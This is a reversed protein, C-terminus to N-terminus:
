LYPDSMLPLRCIWHGDLFNCGDHTRTLGGASGHRGSLLACMKHLHRARILRAATMLGMGEAGLVHLLGAVVVVQCFALTSLRGSCPVFDLVKHGVTLVMLVAPMDLHRVLLLLGVKLLILVM